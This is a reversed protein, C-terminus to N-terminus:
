WFPVRSTLLRGPGTRAPATLSFDFDTLNLFVSWPLVAKDMQEWAESCSKIELDGKEQHPMKGTCNCLPLLPLKIVFHLYKQSKLVSLSGWEDGRQLRQGRLMVTCLIRWRLLSAPLHLFFNWRLCSMFTMTPFIKPPWVPHSSFYM